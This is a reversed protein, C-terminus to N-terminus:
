GHRSVDLFVCVWLTKLIRIIDVVRVEVVVDALGGVWWMVLTDTAFQDHDIVYIM